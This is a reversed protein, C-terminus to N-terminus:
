NEGPYLRRYVDLDSGRDVAVVLLWQDPDSPDVLALDEFDKGMLTRFREINEVADDSNAGITFLLSAASDLPM